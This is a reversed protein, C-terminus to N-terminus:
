ARAVCVSVLKMLEMIEFCMRIARVADLKTGAGGPACSRALAVMQDVAADRMPACHCRIIDGITQFVGSPDFLGHDIEQQILDPDLLQRLLAVHALNQQFQPHQPLPPSLVEPPRTSPQQLPQIISVLVELLEHLLPRIRSLTRVTMMNGTSFALMPRENPLQPVACACRREALRGNGDVTTCTCGCELERVIALWYNDALDRKRRSSTPRFQLGSDFLLDHGVIFTCPHSHFPRYTLFSRSSVSSPIASYRKSIM